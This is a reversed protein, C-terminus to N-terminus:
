VNTLLVDIRVSSVSKPCGCAGQRSAPEHENGDFEVFFRVGLGFRHSSFHLTTRVQILGHCRLIVIQPDGRCSSASVILIRAVARYNGTGPGSAALYDCVKAQPVREHDGCEQDGFELARGRAHLSRRVRLRFM